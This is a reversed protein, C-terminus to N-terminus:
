LRIEHASEGERDRSRREALGCEKGVVYMGVCVCVYVYLTMVIECRKPRSERVIGLGDRWLGISSMMACVYACVCVRVTDDCDRIEHASEGELDRSRRGALGCMMACIYGCVCMRVYMCAVWVCVCTCVYVTDCDRM